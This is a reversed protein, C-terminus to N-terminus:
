FFWSFFTKLKLHLTYVSPQTIYLKRNKGLVKDLSYFLRVLNRSAFFLHMIYRLLLHICVTSKMKLIPKCCVQAFWCSFVTLKKLYTDRKTGVVVLCQITLNTSFFNNKFVKRKWYARRNITRESCAHSQKIFKCWNFLLVGEGEERIGM